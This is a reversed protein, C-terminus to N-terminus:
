QGSKMPAFSPDSAKHALADTAAFAERWKEIAKALEAIRLPKALFDDMGAELCRKVDDVMANATLAIIPTHAAPTLQQELERIRRTASLGDLVPMQVDMLILDPQNAQWAQIGAQGDEAQTVHHGLRELMLQFVQRNVPNDEILLVQLQSPDNGPHDVAYAEATALKKADGIPNAKSNSEPQSAEASPAGQLPVLRDETAALENVQLSFEFRSGQGKQSSARIDGGMARALRRSIALGLGTGGFRRTISHDEQAFPEFIQELKDAAIGIGTDSVTFVLPLADGPDGPVGQTTPRKSLMEKADLELRVDVSGQATFKLANAILNDLVQRTRAQDGVFEEPIGPSVGHTLQLGRGRATAQHSAVIDTLMERIRIQDQRLELHGANIKSFDLLDNAIILLADGSSRILRLQEHQENTLDTSALHESLGIIANLPTRIEHSMQAIFQSKSENLAHAATLAEDLSVGRARSEELYSRQLAESKVLESIRRQLQESLQNFARMLTGFEDTRSSDIELDFNGARLDRAATVLVDLPRTLAVGLTWVLGAVILSMLLGVVLVSLFMGERAERIEQRSLAFRAAGVAQGALELQIKSIIPATSSLLTGPYQPSGADSRVQYEQPIAALGTGASAIKNGAVDYIEIHILDRGVHLEEVIAAVSAYDRQAMPVALAANLSPKLQAIRRELSAELFRDLQIITTIGVLVLTILQLGFFAWILKARFSGPLRFM